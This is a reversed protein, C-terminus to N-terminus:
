NVKASDRNNDNGISKMRWRVLIPIDLLPERIQWQMAVRSPEQELQVEESDGDDDNGIM